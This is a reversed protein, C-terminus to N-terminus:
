GRLRWFVLGVEAHVVGEDGVLDAKVSRARGSGEDVVVDLFWRDGEIFEGGLGISDGSGERLLVGRVTKGVQAGAGEEGIRLDTFDSGVFEVGRLLAWGAVEREGLVEMSWEGTSLDRSYLEGGSRVVDWGKRRGGDEPGLRYGMLDRGIFVGSLELKIEVEGEGSTFVQTLGGRFRGSGAEAMAASAENLVVLPDKGEDQVVGRGVDVLGTGSASVGVEQGEALGDVNRGLGGLELRKPGDLMVRIEEVSPGSGEGGFDFGTGIASVDDGAVPLVLGPGFGDDGAGSIWVAVGGISMLGAVVGAVILGKM